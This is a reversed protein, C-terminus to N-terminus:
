SRIGTRRRRRRRGGRRATAGRGVGGRPPNSRLFLRSRWADRAGAGAGGRNSRGRGAERAGAAPTKATTVQRRPGRTRRHARDGLGSNRLYPSSSLAASWKSATDVSGWVDLRALAARGTCHSTGLKRCGLCQPEGLDGSRPRPRPRAASLSASPSAGRRGADRPPARTRTSREGRTSSIWRSSAAVLESAKRRRPSIREVHLAAAITAPAQATNAIRM